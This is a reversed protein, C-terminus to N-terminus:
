LALTEKMLATEVDAQRGELEAATTPDCFIRAKKVVRLMDTGIGAVIQSMEGLAYERKGRANAFLVPFPDIHDKDRPPIDVLISGPPLSHGVLKEVAETLRHCLAQGEDVGMALLRTHAEQKETEAYVPAFTMIRKYLNRRHHTLGSLIRAGISGRTAHNQLTRLLEDDSHSLLEAALNDPNWSPVVDALAAEVM